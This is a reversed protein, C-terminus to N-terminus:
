PKPPSTLPITLSGVTNSGRDLVIFRLRRVDKELTLDQTFPLGEEFARDREQASYHIDVPAMTSNAIRGDSQYGIMAIRLQGTLREPVIFNSEFGPLPVVSVKSSGKGGSYRDPFGTEVM